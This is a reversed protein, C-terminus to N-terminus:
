SPEHDEQAKELQLERYEKQLCINFVITAVIPGVLLLFFIWVSFERVTEWEFISSVTICVLLLMFFWVNLFRSKIRDLLLDYRIISPVHEQWNPDLHPDESPALFALYTPEEFQPFWRVDNIRDNSKIVADVAFMLKQLDAEQQTQNGAPSRQERPSVFWRYEEEERAMPNDVGMTLEITSSGSQCEVWYLSDDGGEVKVVTIDQSPLGTALIQALEEGAPDFVEAPRKFDAKMDVYRNFSNEM